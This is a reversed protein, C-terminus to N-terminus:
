TPLPDRAHQETPSLVVEELIALLNQISQGQKLKNRLAQLLADEGILSYVVEILSPVSRRLHHLHYALMDQHLLSEANSVLVDAVHSCFDATDEYGPKTVVSLVRHDIGVLSKAPALERKPMLQIPRMVVGTRLYVATQVLPLAAELASYDREIESSVAVYPSPPPLAIQRILASPIRPAPRPQQVLHQMEASLAEVDIRGEQALLARAHQTLANLLFPENALAAGDSCYKSIERAEQHCLLKPLHARITEEIVAMLSEFSASAELVRLLVREGVIEVACSRPLVDDEPWERFNVDCLTFKAYDAITQRLRAMRETLESSLRGDPAALPVLTPHLLIHLRTPSPVLVRAATGYYFIFTQTQELRQHIENYEANQPELERALRANECAEAVIADGAPNRADEAELALALNAAYRPEQPTVQRARRYQSAAEVYDARYYKLNGFLNRYTAEYEEGLFRRLSRYVLEALRFEKQDQYLKVAMSELNNVIADRWDPARRLSALSWHLVDQWDGKDQAVNALGWYGDVANPAIELVRRFAAQASDFQGKQLHFYGRQLYAQPREPDYEIARAYWVMAEETVANSQCVLAAAIMAQYTDADSLAVSRTREVLNTLRDRREAFLAPHGCIQILAHYGESPALSCRAAQSYHTEAGAVDGQKQLVEGISVHPTAADPEARSARQFFDLASKAHEEGDESAQLKGQMWLVRWDDPAVENAKALMTEAAAVNVFIVLDLEARIALARGRLTTNVRIDSGITTFLEACERWREMRALAMWSALQSALRDVGAPVGVAAQALHHALDLQFRTLASATINLWDTIGADPESRMKAQLRQLEASIAREVLGTRLKGLIAQLRDQAAADNVIATLRDFASSLDVTANICERMHEIAATASRMNVSALAAARYADAILAEVPSLEAAQPALGQTM